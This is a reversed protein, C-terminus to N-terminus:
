SRKPEQLRLLMAWLDDRLRKRFEPRADNPHLDGQLFEALEAFTIEPANEPSPARRREIQARQDREKM